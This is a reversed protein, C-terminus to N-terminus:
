SSGGAAVTVDVDLDAAANAGDLVHVLVHVLAVVFRLAHENPAPAPAPGSGLLLNVCVQLAAVDGSGLCNVSDQLHIHMTHVRSNVAKWSMQGTVLHNREFFAL